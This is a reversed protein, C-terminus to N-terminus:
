IIELMKGATYDVANIKHLILNMLDDKTIINLNYKKQLLMILTIFEDIVETQKYDKTIRNIAKYIKRDIRLTYEESLEGTLSLYTDANISINDVSIRIIKIMSQFCKVIVNAYGYNDRNDTYCFKAFDIFKLLILEDAPIIGYDATNKLYFDVDLFLEEYYEKNLEEFKYVKM